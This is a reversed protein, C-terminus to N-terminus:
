GIVHFDVNVALFVGRRFNGRQYQPFQLFGCLIMEPVLHILRHNGHRRVEVVCLSLGRLIGALDCTQFHCANDVFWRSCSQSVTQLLLSFLLDANEVETTACEVDGNKFHFVLQDFHEAGVTVSVKTTIVEVFRHNVVYCSFETTFVTDIQPLIGHGQLPEAFSRFFGLLFKGSLLGGIDIQREDRRICGSGLM